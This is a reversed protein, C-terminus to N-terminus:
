KLIQLKVFKIWSETTFHENAGYYVDNVYWEKGGNHYEIAPGDERHCKGNLYWAKDGNAAETSPGDTRHRKGNLYWDKGGDDWEVAPANERHLKGNVYYTINNYKDKVVGTFTEKGEFSFFYEVLKPNEETYIM